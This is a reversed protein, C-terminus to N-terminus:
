SIYVGAFRFRDISKKIENELAKVRSEQQLFNESEGDLGERAPLDLNLNPNDIEIKGISFTGSSFSYM